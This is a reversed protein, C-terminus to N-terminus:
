LGQGLTGGLLKPYLWQIGLWAAAGGLAAISHAHAPPRWHHVCYHRLLAFGLWQPQLLPATLLLVGLGFPAGHGTYQAIAMGFWYMTALVSLMSMAWAALLVSRWRQLHAFGYLCPLLMVFGFVWAAGGQAYAAMLIASGGFAPVAM